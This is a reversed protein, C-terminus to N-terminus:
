PSVLHTAAFSTLVLVNELRSLSAAPEVEAKKFVDQQEGRV